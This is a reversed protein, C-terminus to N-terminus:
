LNQRKLFDLWAEARVLEGHAPCIWDIGSMDLTKCSENAMVMDHIFLKPSHVIVNNEVRVLDGAFLVNRYRFCVHGPTHGPTKIIRFGSIAADPLIKASEPIKSGMFISLFRRFGTPKQRRRAVELDEASIFVNCGTKEVIFVSNGIHDGDSHTILIRIIDGPEIGLTELERIIATGKGPFSTDILTVGDNDKVAYVYSDKTCDLRYINEKILM